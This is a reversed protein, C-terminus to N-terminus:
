HNKIEQEYDMMIAGFHERDDAKRLLGVVVEAQWIKWKAANSEGWFQEFCNRIDDASIGKVERLEKIKNMTAADVPAVNKPRDDSSKQSQNNQQTQQKSEPPSTNSKSEPNQESQSQKPDEKIEVGSNLWDMLEKGVEETIQFIKDVFMGTRDKSAACKHDMAVDFVTTLEYEFGERQVPALGIKQIKKKGGEDTMSYDQKSRMTVIMHAPSSVIASVFQEQKPTYKSWNTFSNGGRSDTQEKQQLIGGSGAWAHSISDTIILEYGEAVADKFAQEYKETTYPAEIELVDFDFLHAYLSASGKESDVVATKLGMGKALRLASYTKGSGSPGSIGLRLKSKKREAKKFKSQTQQAM